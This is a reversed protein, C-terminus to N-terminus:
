SSHRFACLTCMTTPRACQLEITDEELVLVRGGTAAIEALTRWRDRGTSSTQRINQRRACPATHPFEGVTLIGDAVFRDLSIISVARKRLRLSAQPPRLCSARFREGTEPVPPRAASDHHASGAGVHAAVWHIIRKVM